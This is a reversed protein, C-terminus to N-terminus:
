EYWLRPLPGRSSAAQVGPVVAGRSLDGRIHLYRDPVPLGTTQIWGRGHVHGAAILEAEQGVPAMGKAYCQSLTEDSDAFAYRGAYAYGDHLWVYLVIPKDLVDRFWDAALEALRDPAGTADLAWPSPSEPLSHVQNHLRDGRVRDGVVHEGVDILHRSPEAPDAISVRALLAEWGDGARSVVGYDDTPAWAACYANLASAFAREEDTFEIDEDVEFWTGATGADLENVARTLSEAIAKATKEASRQKILGEKAAARLTVSTGGAPDPSLRATVVVPNLGAYGGRVIARIRRERAGAVQPDDLIRGLPALVREVQDTTTGMPLPVTLVVEHAVTRLLYRSAFLAGRRAGGFGTSAALSGLASALLAEEDEAALDSEM